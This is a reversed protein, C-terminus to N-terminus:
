MFDYDDQAEVYGARYDEEEGQGLNLQKKKGGKKKGATAEKEAKLKENAIVTLAANLEKADSAALSATAKRLFAKLLTLYHFSKSFTTAQAALLAAFELFDAETKPIFNELSRGEKKDDGFLEKANKFDAEEVLRQQRLKEAIPDDLPIDEEKVEKPGEKSKKKEAKPNAAAKAKDEDEWSEKLEEEEKDEDDWQSKTPEKVVVPPPPEFDEADWDDAM